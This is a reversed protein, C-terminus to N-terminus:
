PAIKLEDANYDPKLCKAISPQNKLSSSQIQAPVLKRRAPSDILNPFRTEWIQNV